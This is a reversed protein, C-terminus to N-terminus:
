DRPAVVTLSAAGRLNIRLTRLSGPEIQRALYHKGNAGDILDQDFRQAFRHVPTCFGGRTGARYNRIRIQAAVEGLIKRKGVGRELEQDEVRIGAVQL